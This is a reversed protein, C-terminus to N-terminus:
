DIELALPDLAGVVLEVCVAIASLGGREYEHILKVGHAFDPIM